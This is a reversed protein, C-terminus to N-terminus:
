EGDNRTLLQCSVEDEDIELGTKSAQKCDESLSLAVGESRM